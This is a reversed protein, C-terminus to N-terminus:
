EGPWVFAEGDFSFVGQAVLADVRERAQGEDVDAFLPQCSLWDLLESAKLKGAVKM